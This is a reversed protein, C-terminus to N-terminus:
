PLTVGRIEKNLLYASIFTLALARFCAFQISEFLHTTQSSAEFGILRLDICGCSLSLGRAWAQATCFIFIAFLMTAWALATTVQLNAILLLGCLLEVWPVTFAAVRLLVGPVPLRYAVLTGFFDQLNALKSLAAWILLLGMCFRVVSSLRIEFSVRM